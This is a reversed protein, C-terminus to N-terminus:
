KNANQEKKLASVLSAIIAGGMLALLVMTILTTVNQWSYAVSNGMIYILTVLSFNNVFHLIMAHIVNGTRMVVVGYIIGMIFQYVFQAPNMHFLAFMLASGFVALWKNTKSLEKFIVGRFLLEEVIPPIIGIVLVLMIYQGFNTSVGMNEGGTNTLGWHAFLDVFAFQV